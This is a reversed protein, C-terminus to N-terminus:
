NIALTLPDSSRTVEPHLSYETEVGEANKVVVTFYLKVNMGQTATSKPTVTFDVRGEVPGTIFVEESADGEGEGEGDDEGDITPSTLTFHEVDGEMRIKWQGNAPAYVSFYAEIPKTPDAFVANTRSAGANAGSAITLATASIVVGKNNDVKNEYDMNEDVENWPLVKITLQLDKGKFQVDCHYRNGAEWVVGEPFNIEYSKEEESDNETFVVQIKASTPVTQPWVCAYTRTTSVEGALVDYIGTGPIEADLESKAVFNGSASGTGYEPKVESYTFLDPETAEGDGEGTDDGDGEGDGEQNEAPEFTITASNSNLLGSVTVSHVHYITNDESEADNTVDSIGFSIGAFLHKFKLPVETDGTQKEERTTEALNSYMFDVQNDATLTLAPLTLVRGALSVNPYANDEADKKTWGFFAHDGVKWSYQKPSNVFDWGGASTKQIVNDIYPTAAGMDDMIHLQMKGDFTVAEVRMISKTSFAITGEQTKPELVPDMASHKSCATGLVALVIFTLYIYVKKM